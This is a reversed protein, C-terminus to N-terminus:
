THSSSPFKRSPHPKGKKDRDHGPAHGPLPGPTGDTAGTDRGKFMGKDSPQSSVISACFSGPQRHSHLTGAIRMITRPRANIVGQGMTMMAWDDWGAGGAEDGSPLDNLYPSISWVQGFGPFIPRIRLCISRSKPRVHASRWSINPSKPPMRGLKTQLRNSQPRRRGAVVPGPKRGIDALSNARFRGPAKPPIPGFTALKAGGHASNSRDRGFRARNPRRTWSAM